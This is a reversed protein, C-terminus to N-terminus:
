VGLLALEEDVVSPDLKRFVPKPAALPTGAVLPVSAWRAGGTYDGTLVPYSPGGDLDDVEVISPMPSHVGANGLLEHIKQASHPLFPSLLTNADSVV